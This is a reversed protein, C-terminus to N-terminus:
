KRQHNPSDKNEIFRRAPFFRPSGWTSTRSAAITKAQSTWIWKQLSDLNGSIAAAIVIGTIWSFMRNLSM